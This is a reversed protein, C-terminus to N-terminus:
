FYSNPSLTLNECKKSVIPRKQSNEGNQTFNPYTSGGPPTKPTEFSSDSTTSKQKTLNSPSNTNKPSANSKPRNKNM